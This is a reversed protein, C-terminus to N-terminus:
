LFSCSGQTECYFLCFKPSSYLLIYVSNSLGAVLSSLLAQGTCQKLRSKLENRSWGIM